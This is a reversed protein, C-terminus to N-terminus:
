AYVLLSPALNQIMNKKASASPKVSVFSWNAIVYTYIDHYTILNTALDCAYLHIKFMHLRQWIPLNWACLTVAMNTSKMCILDSGCLYIGHM